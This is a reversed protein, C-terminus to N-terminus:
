AAERKLDSCRSTDIGKGLLPKGNTNNEIRIFVRERTRVIKRQDLLRNTYWPRPPKPKRKQKEEPIIKELTRRLEKELASWIDGLKSHKLIEENRFEQTFSDLDLKKFQRRHWNDLQTTAKKKNIEIGVLRHDLIYEGIFSHRVGLM